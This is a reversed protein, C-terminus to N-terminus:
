DRRREGDIRKVETYTSLHGMGPKDLETYVLVAEFDYVQYGCDRCEYREVTRDRLVNYSPYDLMANGNDCRPCIALNTGRFILETRKTM